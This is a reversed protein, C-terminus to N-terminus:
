ISIFGTYKSVRYVYLGQISIFGTDSLNKEAVFGDVAAASAIAVVDEEKFSSSGM